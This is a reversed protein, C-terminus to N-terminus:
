KIEMEKEAVLRYLQVSVVNFDSDYYIRTLGDGCEIMCECSEGVWIGRDEIFEEHAASLMDRYIPNGCLSNIKHDFKELLVFSNPDYGDKDRQIKLSNIFKTVVNKVKAPVKRKKEM